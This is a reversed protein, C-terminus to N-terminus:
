SEWVYNQYEESLEKFKTQDNQDISENLEEELRAKNWHFCLEDLVLQSALKLEYPIERRANIRKRATGEFSKLRYIVKEKKM